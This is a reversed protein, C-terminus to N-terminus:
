AIRRSGFAAFPGFDVRGSPMVSPIPAVKGLNGYDIEAPTVAVPAAAVKTEPVDRMKQLFAQWADPASPAEPQGRNALWAALESPLGIGSPGVMQPAQVLAVPAAAVPVGVGDPQRGVPVPQSTALTAGDPLRGVVQAGYKAGEGYGAVGKEFSGAARSRAALYEASFRAQEELSKNAMPKVGYGPNRATSELIGFPGFATSVKGTHPAIRQGDANLGYHYATPDALYKDLEPGVEQGVIANMAGTPLGVRQEAARLLTSFSDPLTNPKKPAPM